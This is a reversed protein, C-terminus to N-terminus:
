ICIKKGIIQPLENSDKLDHQGMRKMKDRKATLYRINTRSCYIDAHRMKARQMEFNLKAQYQDWFSTKMPRLMDYKKKMELTLNYVSVSDQETHNVTFRPSIETYNSHQSTQPKSLVCSLNRDNAPDKGDVYRSCAIGSLISSRSGCRSFSPEQLTSGISSLPVGVVKIAELRSSCQRSEKVEEKYKAASANKKAVMVPLGSTPTLLSSLEMERQTNHYSIHSDLAKSAKATHRLDKQIIDVM